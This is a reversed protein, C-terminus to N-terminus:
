ETPSCGAAICCLEAYLCCRLLKASSIIIQASITIEVLVMQCVTFIHAVRVCNDRYVFQNINNTYKIFFFMCFHTM